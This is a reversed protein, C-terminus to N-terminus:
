SSKNSYIMYIYISTLYPICNELAIRHLIEKALLLVNFQHIITFAKCVNSAIPDKEGFM